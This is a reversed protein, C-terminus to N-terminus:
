WHLPMKFRANHTLIAIRRKYSKKRLRKEDRPFEKLLAVVARQADRMVRHDREMFQAHRIRKFEDWLQARTNRDIKTGLYKRQISEATTPAIPIPFFYELLPKRSM